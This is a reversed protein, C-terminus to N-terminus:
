SAVGDFDKTEPRCIRCQRYGSEEAGAVSAFVVRRDERLRQEHRCGRLCVIRTTTCGVLRPTSQELRLLATKMTGGFAYHGWTGDGRVVRHCPVIIPVPNAGLANGVARAARPRRIREAIGAYSTVEGFPVRLAEKLVKMQFDPVASLDIPVSFFARRGAFYEGLERRAQAAIRRAAASTATGGTGPVLRVIGRDTADIRFRDAQLRSRRADTRAAPRFSLDRPAIGPDFYQRLRQDVDNM